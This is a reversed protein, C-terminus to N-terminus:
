QSNGKTPGRGENISDCNGVYNCGKSPEFKRTGGPTRVQTGFNLKDNPGMAAHFNPVGSTDPKAPGATLRNTNGTTAGRGMNFTKNPDTKGAHQNGAYGQAKARQSSGNHMGDSAMDADGRQAPSTAVKTVTKMNAPKTSKM